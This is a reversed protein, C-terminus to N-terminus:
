GNDKLIEKLAKPSIRKGNLKFKYGASCMDDIQKSDPICSVSSCGMVAIGDERIVEFDIM